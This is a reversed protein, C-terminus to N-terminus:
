NLEEEDDTDLIAGYDESGSKGSLETLRTRVERRTTGCIVSDLLRHLAKFELGADVLTWWVWGVWLWGQNAIPYPQNRFHWAGDLSMSGAIPDIGPMLGRVDACTRRHVLGHVLM